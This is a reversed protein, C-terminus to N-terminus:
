CWLSSVKFNDKVRGDREDEKDLGNGIRGKRGKFHNLPSFVVRKKGGVVRLWKDLVEWNFLTPEWQKRQEEGEKWLTILIYRLIGVRDNSNNSFLCAQWMRDVVGGRSDWCCDECCRYYRIKFMFKVCPILGVFQFSYFVWLSSILLPISPSRHWVGIDSCFNALSCLEKASTARLTM